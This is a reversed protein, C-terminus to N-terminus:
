NKNQYFSIAPRDLEACGCSIAQNAIFCDKVKAVTGCQEVVALINMQQKTLTQITFINCAGNKVLPKKVEGKRFLEAVTNANISFCDMRCIAYSTYEIRSPNRNFNLKKRPELWRVKIFIYGLLLIVFILSVIVNRARM